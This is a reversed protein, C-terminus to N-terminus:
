LVAKKHTHNNCYVLTSKIEEFVESDLPCHIQTVCVNKIRIAFSEEAWIIQLEPVM